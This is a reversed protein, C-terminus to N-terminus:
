PLSLNINIGPTGKLTNGVYCRNVDALFGTRQNDTLEANLMISTTFEDCRGPNSANVTDVTIEFGNHDINHRKLYSIVHMGTCMGLAYSKSDM